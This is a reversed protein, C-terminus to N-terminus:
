RTRHAMTKAAGSGIQGAICRRALGWLPVLTFPHLQGLHFALGSREGFVWCLSCPQLPYGDRTAKSDHQSGSCGVWPRLRWPTCPPLSMRTSIWPSASRATAATTCPCPGAVSRRRFTRLPLSFLVAFARGWAGPWCFIRPPGLLPLPNLFAGPAAGSAAMTGRHRPDFSRRADSGSSALREYECLLHALFITAWAAVMALPWEGRGDDTM